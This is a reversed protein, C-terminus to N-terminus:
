KKLTRIFKILEDIEADTLKDQGAAPMKVKPNGERTVKKMEADKHNAQWEGSTMDGVKLKEGMKTKGAGDEGHCKACYKGWKEPPSASSPTAVFAGLALSGIVFLRQM